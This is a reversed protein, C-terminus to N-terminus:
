EGFSRIWYNALEGAWPTQPRYLRFGHDFLNNSSSVNDTLTYTIVSTAGLRRAWRLRVDILKDHIGRGRFTPLVGARLLYVLNTEPLFKAASFGAPTNDVRALWYAVDLSKMAVRRDCPFIEKDLSGIIALRESMNARSVTTQENTATM